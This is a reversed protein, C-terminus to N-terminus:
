IKPKEPMSRTALSSATAPSITKIVPTSAKDMPQVIVSGALGEASGMSLISSGVSLILKMTLEEGYAPVSPQWASM